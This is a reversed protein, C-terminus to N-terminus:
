MFGLILKGEYEYYYCNRSKSYKVPAGMEKILKLHYYLSRESIKLKKALDRPTGSAKTRILRDLREIRRINISDM